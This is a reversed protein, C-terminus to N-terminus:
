ENNTEGKLRYSTVLASHKIEGQKMITQIENRKRLARLSTYIAGKSLDTQEQVEKFTLYKPYNESLIKSVIEQSM